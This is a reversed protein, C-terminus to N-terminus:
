KKDGDSVWRFEDHGNMICKNCPHQDTFKSKYLCNDCEKPIDDWHSETSSTDNHCCTDCHKGDAIIM